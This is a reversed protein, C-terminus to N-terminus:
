CHQLMVTAHNRHQSTKEANEKWFAPWNLIKSVKCMKFVPNSHNIKKQLWKEKAMERYIESDNSETQWDPVYIELKENM